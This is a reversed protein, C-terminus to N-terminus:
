GGAQSIAIEHLYLTGSYRNRWSETMQRNALNVEQLACDQSPVTFSAGSTQKESGPVIVVDALPTQQGYCRLVVRLPEPMRLERQSYTISLTHTGPPIRTVQRVNDLLRIPNNLFRVSLGGIEENQSPIRRLELGSQSILRWDFPSGSPELVFRGNNIFGAERMQADDLTLRYLFFAAGDQDAGILRQTVMNVLPQLNDAGQRHWGILLQQASPLTQPQASLTEILRLRADGEAAFIVALRNRGEPDTAILRAIPAVFEWRSSWRRAVIDLVDAAEAFQREIVLQRLKGFLSQLETPLLSLAKDYLAHAAVRNGQQENFLGLAGLLRADGPNLSIGRELIHLVEEPKSSQSSSFHQRAAQLRARNDLPNFALALQPATAPM